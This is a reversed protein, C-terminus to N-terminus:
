IAGYCLIGLASMTLHVLTWNQECFVYVAHLMILPSAAFIVTPVIWDTLGLSHKFCSLSTTLGLETPLENWSSPGAVSFGWDGIEKRTRPTVLNIVLEKGQELRVLNMTDASRLQRTYENNSVRLVLERIYSPWNFYLSKYITLCLKYKIYLYLRHLQHNGHSSYSIVM